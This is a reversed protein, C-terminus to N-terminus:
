VIIYFGLVNNLKLLPVLHESNLITGDILVYVYESSNSPYPLRNIHSKIITDTMIKKIENDLENLENLKCNNNIKIILENM